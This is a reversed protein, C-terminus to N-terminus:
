AEFAMGAPATGAPETPPTMAQGGKAASLEKQTRLKLTIGALTAKIDDLALREDTSLQQSQLQADVDRAMADAERQLDAQQAEFDRDAQAQQAKQEREAQKDQLEMQKRETQGSERIQAAEVQPMPPPPNQAAAEALEKKRQDTLQFTKPNFRQSKLWEEVTTKPDLEYAQNLSLDLLVPLQQNQIDREVLASSGRAKIQFDGKISEDDSYEMLWAHYRRIHSETCADFQRAIRRLVTSGNNNQLARGSATEQVNGQMGLMILPLGTHLEMMQQAMQLINQMEQQLSPQIFFSMAQRVDNAGAESDIEWTWPDAGQTVADTMVKHPRAAAGANDMLNRFAATYTRQATRGQRAVGVGWPMGKRKKWVLVDYPFEGSELPNLAAKIVRDNVMTVLVPFQEQMKEPPCECGAAELEEGTIVGYFFWVEFVDKESVTESQKWGVSAQHKKAGEKIAADIQDDLYKAKGIGGKLESLRRRTFFDREFIYSGDHINEGCSPDPFLNWPDVRKSGAKTEEKVVLMVEGTAPDRRASRSKRKMPVPGKIVGSGLRSCDDIVERFQPQYQCETLLDDIEDQLKQAADVAKQRIAELKRLLEGLLDAPEAPMGAAQAPDAMIAAADNAPPPMQPQAGGLMEPSPAPANPDAAAALAGATVGVPDFGEEEDLVDPVPTPEVVFNRDDTPLLMDSVKAAAMDVYPATINPFLICGKHKDPTVDRGGETPKAPFYGPHEQRNADDIGLYFEEDDQWEKEIGSSVRGDIAEKRKQAIATGLEELVRRRKEAAQQDRESPKSKM